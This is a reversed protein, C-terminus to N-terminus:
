WEMRDGLDGPALGVTGDENQPAPRIERVSVDYLSASLGRMVYFERAALAVAKYEHLWTTM